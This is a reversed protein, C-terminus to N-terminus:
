RFEIRYKLEGGYLGSTDQYGSLRLNQLLKYEAIARRIFEGKESAVAYKITLRKSLDKGITVKVYGENEGNKNDTTEVELYDLSTTKKIDDGLTSAIMEALIQETSQSVGGGSKILERSTKGVLLLSLIDEREEAPESTLKLVIAERTGSIELFIKWQRVQVESKIDFTPDNKYPNLFDITGKKVVFVKRLYDVTGSEVSTRGRILPSDATGQIKINPAIELKALNNEVRLLNRHKIDVDVSMNKLLSSTSEEGAIIANRKKETLEQLLNLKVDKYYLGDILIIEGELLSKDKSGSLKLNADLVMDMTDPIQIPLATAKFNIQGKGPQLDKLEIKGDVNFIGDDIKGYINEILLDKSNVLISGNLDHLKQFLYPITFSINKLDAKASIEPHAFSGGLDASLNLGGKIDALDEIYSGLISVPIDGHAHIKIPGNLRGTGNITIKANDMFFLDFAPILLNGNQYSLNADKANVAKNNGFSLEMDSINARASINELNKANGQAEFSGTLKGSWDPYGAITLYPLLDSHDFVANIDFTSSKLNMKGNAQFGLDTNCSIINQNLDFNIISDKFEQGKLNLRNIFIKGSLMPHDLSGEGSIDIRLRGEVLGQKRIAEISNLSINESILNVQYKKDFSIWGEGTISEGPAIQISLPKVKITDGDLEPNLKVEHIPQGAIILDQGLINFSGRLHKWPGKAHGKVFLSGKFDKHFDSLFVTAKEINLDTGVSAKVSKPAFVQIKGSASLVSNKNVLELRNVDLIGSNDIGGKLWVDGISIGRIYLAESKADCIFVPAKLFGSVAADLRVSGKIDKIGLPSLASTLDPAAIFVKGELAQSIINYQGAARLDTKGSSFQVQKLTAIGQSLDAKGSFLLDVPAALRDVTVGQGQVKWGAFAEASGPKIGKGRISINSQVLGRMKKDDLCLKELNVNKGDLVIDYTLEDPYSKDSIFGEPFVKMLDVTGSLDIQGGGAWLSCPKLEALRNKLSFSLKAKDIKNDAIVGGNYTATGSVEPNNIYGKAELHSSIQGNYLGEIGLVNQLKSLAIDFDGALDISPKDFVNTIHGAIDIHSNGSTVQLNLSSIVEKAFSAELKIPGFRLNSSKRDINGSKIKLNCSGTKQPWDGNAILDIGNATISMASDPIQFQFKGNTLNFKELCVKYELPKKPEDAKSNKVSSLANTLNLNGSKDPRLLIWPNEITLQRVILCGKLFSDWSIDIFLRKIGAIDELSDDKLNVHNLELQGKLLSIQLHDFSISGKIQKDIQSEIFRKGFDTQISFVLGAIGIILLFFLAAISILIIKFKKPM